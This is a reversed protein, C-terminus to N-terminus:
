QIPKYYVLEHNLQNPHFIEILDKLIIHPNVVGSEWFDVGGSPNVRNNNNFVKRGAMVPLNTVIPFQNEIEALTNVTGPNIWIDATSAYELANEISFPHSKIGELHSLCYDGGADAILNAMYGQGGPFYWVDKWPLNIFVNPKDIRAPLGAKVANYQNAIDSFISDALKYKGFMVGFAKIWEAKGLPNEELYDAIFVVPINLDKLKQLYGAMEAGVGYAFVVDPNLSVLLEYSLAQEYGVDKVLGAAVRERVSPSSVFGAGSVGVITESSNLRDIFAIHTTSLCVVRKVPIPITENFTSVASKQHDTSLLYNYEIGQANQWPNTVTLQFGDPHKAITFSKAYAVPLKEKSIKESSPKSSFGCGYFFSISVFLLSYFIRMPILNNSPM